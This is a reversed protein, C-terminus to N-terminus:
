GQHGIRLADFLQGRMAHLILLAEVIIMALAFVAALPMIEDRAIVPILTPLPANAQETIRFFPVFLEATLTGIWLGALAGYATIFAYEMVIQAIVQRHMMGVARMIGFQYLREQLSASSYVLLSLVAMLAAALFGISLTGFLGVREFKGQEASILAGAHRERVPDFGMQEVSQFFRAAETPDVATNAPTRAVAPSTKLWIRHTFQAGGLFFLHDLNGIITETEDYVTPFHEYVGAIRFTSRVVIGDELSIKLNIQDGIHNQTQDLYRQSVLINEPATALRNMLAGTSERAFDFRFWAVTPFDVRDIGLFEGRIAREGGPAPIEARYRGMRTADVVGPLQMFDDPPPIWAAGPNGSSASEAGSGTSSGGTFPAPEFAVDAGVQYYVRDVLWQDLSAALSISYIGLALSIVVLLLPNVYGHSYRGLQRLALHLPLWPTRSALQDLLRMLLPFLRMSLLTATLAFLAPLLIMVPDNFLDTSEQDVLDALSGRQVLQDYVYWTPIILLFDLYARQWFPAKLIRARERAQEVVSTRATLAAPILRACLSISLALAILSFSAGQLSVPFDARQIFSLFSVTNGMVRAIFMGFAIGLPIGLSFLLVEEILVLALVVQIGMGRSVLIATERRQWDAIIVSILVLFALLFGLAPVNFALLMTTLTTQRQVFDSLPDLASVDLRTNPLYQNIVYM